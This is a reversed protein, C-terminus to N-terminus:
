FQACRTYTANGSVGGKLRYDDANLSLSGTGDANVSGGLLSASGGPHFGCDDYSLSSGYGIGGIGASMEAEFSGGTRDLGSNPSYSATAGYGVGVGACLSFGGDDWNARIKGGLGAFFGFEFGELGTLDRQTLPSNGVYVYRNLDKSDFLSPDPSTWRGTSPDYDRVGLRLWGTEPDELGGAYGLHLVREPATDSLRQGFPGYPTSKLLTGDLRFLGVPSGFPDVM